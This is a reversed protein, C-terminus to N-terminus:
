DEYDKLKLFDIKDTMSPHVVVTITSLRTMKVGSIRYSWLMLEVLQQPTYNLGRVLNNSGLVPFCISNCAKIKDIELWMNLYLTAIDNTTLFARNHEDFRSYALLLYDQYTVITGLDYCISKGVRIQDILKPQTNILQKEIHKDLDPVSSVYKDIFEGNLSGKAIIKDDVKTDFFENFTIVKKGPLEFLNGEKIIITTGNIKLSVHKKINSYFWIVVYIIFHQVVVGAFVFWKNEDNIPFFLVIISFLLLTWTAILGFRKIVRINFFRVKM